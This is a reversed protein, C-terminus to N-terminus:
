REKQRRRAAVVLKEGKSFSVWTVTRGGLGLQKMDRISKRLVRREESFWGERPSVVAVWRAEWESQTDEFPHTVAEKRGGRMNKQGNHQRGEGKSVAMVTVSLYCRGRRACEGGGTHAAQKNQWSVTKKGPRQLAQPCSM